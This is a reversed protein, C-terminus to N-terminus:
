VGQDAGAGRGLSQDEAASEDQARRGGVAKGILLERVFEVAVAVGDSLPALAEDGVTESAQL